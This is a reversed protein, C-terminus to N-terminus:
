TCSAISNPLSQASSAAISVAIITYHRLCLRCRVYYGHMHMTAHSERTQAHERGTWLLFHLRPRPCLLRHAGVVRSPGLLGPLVRCCSCRTRPLVDRAARERTGSLRAGKQGRLRSSPAAGTPSGCACRRAACHTVVSLQCVSVNECCCCPQDPGAEAQHRCRCDAAAAHDVRVRLQAFDQCGVM